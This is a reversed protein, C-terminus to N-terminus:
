KGETKPSRKSCHYTNAFQDFKISEQVRNEKAGKLISCNRDMRKCNSCQQKEFYDLSEQSDFIGRFPAQSVTIEIRPNEKDIMIRQTRTLVRSDNDYIINELSDNLLKYLNNDDRGLRNMYIVSDQYVYHDKTWEYDWTDGAHFVAEQAVKQIEKKVKEGEKSLIRKGTPIRSRTTPNWGFQNVYLKNLSVALPTTLKIEKNM